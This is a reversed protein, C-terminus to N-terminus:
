GGALPDGGPEENRGKEVFVMNHYFHLGTVQRDFPGPEYEDPDREQWNLADVLGKMFGLSTAPNTTDDPDGGFRPWYATQTDEVVYVGGEALFPFLARFSTIVHANEHSGDDIIVDFPGYTEGIRRMVEADGQDGQLITIREESLSSKDYLDLGIIEARPFYAKWMRLSAGGLRKAKHGGVGIELLRIDRERFAALHREYHITYRHRGWKDTGHATALATLDDKILPKTVRARWVQWRQRLYRRTSRRM